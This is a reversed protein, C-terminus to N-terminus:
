KLTLSYPLCYNIAKHFVGSVNIRNISSSIVRFLKVRVVFIQKENLNTITGYIFLFSILKLSKMGYPM